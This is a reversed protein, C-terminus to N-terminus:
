VLLADGDLNVNGFGSRGIITVLNKVVNVRESRQQSGRTEANRRELVKIFGFFKMRPRPIFSRAYDNPRRPEILLLFKPAAIKVIRGQDYIRAM